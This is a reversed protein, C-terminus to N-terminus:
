CILLERNSFSRDFCYKGYFEKKLSSNLIAILLHLLKDAEPGSLIDHFCRLHTMLSSLHKLLMTFMVLAQILKSCQGDCKLSNDDIMMELGLLVM